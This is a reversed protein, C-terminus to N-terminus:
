QYFLEDLITQAPVKVEDMAARASKDGQIVSWMAPGVLDDGLVRELDFAEGNYDHHARVIIEMSQRDRVVSAALRPLNEMYEEPPWLFDVLAIMAEPNKSSAPLVWGNVGRIPYVYDDARPGKPVPVLRFEDRIGTDLIEGLVITNHVYMAAKGNHIHNQDRQPDIVKDVHFWRYIQELTEVAADSDFAFEYRGGRHEVMRADNALAYFYAQRWWVDEIGWQDIIGDGDTDRTVKKAIETFKDWTWEDNLYLEYPDEAGERDLMTKNYITYSMAYLGPWVGFSFIDGDYSFNNLAVNRAIPPLNDFYADDLVMNVPFFLDRNVNQWFQRNGYGWIDYDADGAMLRTIYLETSNIPIFEIKCNFLEQAELFRDYYMGTESFDESPGGIYVTQGGLDYNASLAATSFLLLAALVATVLTRPRVM